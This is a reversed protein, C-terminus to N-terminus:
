NTNSSCCDSKSFKCWIWLRAHLYALFFDGVQSTLISDSTSQLQGQCILYFLEVKLHEKNM